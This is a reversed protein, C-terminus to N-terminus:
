EKNIRDPQGPLNQVFTRVVQSFDYASEYPPINRAAIGVGSAVPLHVLYPKLRQQSKQAVKDVQKAVDRDITSASEGMVVLVPQQISNIASEYDERWFGALFSFVAYRSNMNRSGKRLMMLWDDTVDEPRAFLQRESFSKLFEERRAYRYFASGLPSSFLSWALKSKWTPTSTTMLPWAPPGSLVLGRVWTAAPLSMLKLAVPLLAGQVVLVVPEQAIQDIFYAIQEAWDQPYYARRPMDSDGCGLLDLNYIKQASRATQWAEIFPQWFHRSLGVGIPHILLLAPPSNELVPKQSSQNDLPTDPSLTDASITEYACRYAQWTYFEM